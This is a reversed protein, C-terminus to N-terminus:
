MAILLESVNLKQMTREKRGNRIKEKLALSEVALAPLTLGRVVEEVSVFLVM